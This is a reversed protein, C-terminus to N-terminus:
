MTMGPRRAAAFGSDKEIGRSEPDVAYPATTRFSSYAGCRLIRDVRWLASVRTKARRPADQHTKTRRPADDPIVHLHQAARSLWLLRKEEAGSEMM